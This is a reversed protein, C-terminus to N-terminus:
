GDSGAFITMSRGESNEDQYSPVCHTNVEAWPSWDLPPVSEQLPKVVPSVTGTGASPVGPGVPDQWGFSDLLYEPVNRSM